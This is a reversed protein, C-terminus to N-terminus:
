SDVQVDTAGPVGNTTFSCTAGVMMLAEEALAVAPVGKEVVIVVVPSGVAAMVSVPASGVPTVRVSLPSPVAM